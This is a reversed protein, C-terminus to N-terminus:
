VGWSVGGGGGGGCFFLSSLGSFISFSVNKDLKNSRESIKKELHTIEKSYKSQEKKKKGAEREFKELDKIVDERSKMEAELETTTKAIDNEINFLQWLFHEKKLSKQPSYVPYHVLGGFLFCIVSELNSSEYSISCFFANYFVSNKPWM